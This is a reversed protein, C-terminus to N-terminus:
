RLPLLCCLRSLSPRIRPEPSPTKSVTTMPASQQIPAPEITIAPTPLPVVMPAPETTVLGTGASETATPLGARTIRPLLSAHASDRGFLAEANQQDGIGVRRDEPPGFDFGLAHAAGQHLPAMADM